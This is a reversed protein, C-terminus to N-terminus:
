SKPSNEDSLDTPLYLRSPLISPHIFVPKGAPCGSPSFARASAILSAFVAWLLWLLPKKSAHQQARRAGTPHSARFLQFCAAPLSARMFKM